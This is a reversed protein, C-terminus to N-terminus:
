HSAQSMQARSKLMTTELLPERCSNHYIESLHLSLIHNQYALNSLEGKPILWAFTCCVRLSAGAHPLVCGQITAAKSASVVVRNLWLAHAHRVVDKLASNMCFHVQQALSHGPEMAGRALPMPLMSDEGASQMVPPAEPLLLCTCSLLRLPGSLSLCESLSLAERGPESVGDM